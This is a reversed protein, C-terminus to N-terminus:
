FLVFIRIIQCNRLFYRYKGKLQLYYFDIAEGLRGSPSSFGDPHIRDGKPSDSLVKSEYM